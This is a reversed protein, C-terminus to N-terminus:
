SFHVRFSLETHPVDIKLLHLCKPTIEKYKRIEDDDSIVEFGAVTLWNKIEDFTVM